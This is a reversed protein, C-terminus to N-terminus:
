YFAGHNYSDTCRVRRLEGRVERYYRPRYLYHGCGRKESDRNRTIGSTPELKLIVTVCFLQASVLTVPPSFLFLTLFLSFDTAPRNQLAPGPRNRAKQRDWAHRVARHRHEIAFQRGAM